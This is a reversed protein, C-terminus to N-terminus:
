PKFRLTELAKDFVPSWAKGTSLSSRLSVLYVAGASEIAAMRVRFRIKEKRPREPMRSADLSEIFEAALFTGAATKRRDLRAAPPQLQSRLLEEASVAPSSSSPVRRVSLIPPSANDFGPLGVFRVVDEAPDFSVRWSPAPVELHYRGEADAYSGYKLLPPERRFTDLFALVAPKHDAYLPDRAFYSVAYFGGEEARAAHLTRLAGGEANKESIEVWSWPGRRSIKGASFSKGGRTSLQASSPAAKDKLYAKLAPAAGEKWSVTLGLPHAPDPQERPEFGSGDESAAWSSPLEASLWLGPLEARQLDGARVGIAGIVIIGAALSNM